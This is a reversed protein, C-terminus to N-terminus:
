ALGKGAGLLPFGPATLATRGKKRRQARFVGGHGGRVARELLSELYGRSIGRIGIPIRGTEETILVRRFGRRLIGDSGFAVPEPSPRKKAGIDLRRLGVLPAPLLQVLDLVPQDHDSLLNARTFRERVHNM